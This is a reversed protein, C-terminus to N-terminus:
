EECSDPAVKCISEVMKPVNEALFPSAGNIKNEPEVWSTVGVIVNAESYPTPVVYPAPISRKGFNVVWSGGSAGGCMLSGIITNEYRSSSQYGQADNRQMYEGKDLCGPYGLQTIHTLGEQTFGWGNWGYGLWGTAVGPYEGHQQWLRIIAIDDRCIRGEGNCPSTGEYYSRLVFPTGRWVGYPAEGNRYGPMFRIYSFFREKGYVSVCHAATLVLGRKILTGGCGIDKDGNRALIKGMARYPYFMNTPESLDARVTSFPLAPSVVSSENEVELRLEEQPSIYQTSNDVFLAKGDGVKGKEFGPERWQREATLSEVMDELIEGPLNDIEQGMALPSFILMASIVIIWFHM